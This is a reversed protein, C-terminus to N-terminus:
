PLSGTGAVSRMTADTDSFTPPLAAVLAGAATEPPEPTPQPAPPATAATPAAELEAIKDIIEALTEHRMKRIIKHVTESGKCGEIVLTLQMAPAGLAVASAASEYQAGDIIDALARAQTDRAYRAKNDDMEEKRGKWVVGKIDSVWINQMSLGLSVLLDLCALAAAGAGSTVLKVEGLSKGVVRLANVIAAAVIFVIEDPRPGDPVCFEIADFHSRVYAAHIYHLPVILRYGANAVVKAAPM